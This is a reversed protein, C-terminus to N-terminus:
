VSGHPAQEGGGIPCSLNKNAGVLMADNKMQFIKFDSSKKKKKKVKKFKFFSLEPDAFQIKM